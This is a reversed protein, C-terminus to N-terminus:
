LCFGLFFSQASIYSKKTDRSALLLVFILDRRTWLHRKFFLTRSLSCNRIKIKNKKLLEWTWLVAYFNPIPAKLSASNENIGILEELMKSFGKKIWEGMPWISSPDASCMECIAAWPPSTFHCPTAEHGKKTYIWRRPSRERRWETHCCRCMELAGRLEEPFARM